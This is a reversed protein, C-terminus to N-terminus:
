NEKRLKQPEGVNQLIGKIVTIYISIYYKSIFVLLLTCPHEHPFSAFIPSDITGLHQLFLGAIIMNLRMHTTLVISFM